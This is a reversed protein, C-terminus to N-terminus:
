KHLHWILEKVESQLQELDQHVRVLDDMERFTTGEVFATLDRDAHSPDKMKEMEKLIASSKWDNGEHKNELHGEIRKLYHHLKDSM